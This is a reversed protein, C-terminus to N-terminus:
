VLLWACYSDMDAVVYIRAAKLWSVLPVVPFTVASLKTFVVVSIDLCSSTLFEHSGVLIHCSVARYISGCINQCNL